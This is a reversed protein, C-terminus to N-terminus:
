GGLIRALNGGLIADRDDGAVGLDDLVALQAELLDRRYGRPFTSSDTGYLLRRPGAVDLARAFADYLTVPAVQLRMWDNSSSTDLYVNECWACALLALSRRPCLPPIANM